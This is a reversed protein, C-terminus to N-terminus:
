NTLGLITGRIAAVTFFSGTVVILDKPQSLNCAQQYACETSDFVQLIKKGPFRNLQDALQEAPVSRQEDVQTIHWIDVVSELAQYYGKIDKDAMMALVATIKGTGNQQLKFAALREALKAAAAPNHAVDLLVDCRNKPDRILEFRGPLHAAILAKAIEVQRLEVNHFQLAQIATAAHIPQLTPQLGPQPLDSIEIRNGASDIGWWNWKQGLCNTIGFDKDLQLVPAVLGGAYDLLSKPPNTEACVMPKGARMIGAKERGIQETTNGLWETHDISISTIIAIDADIINVADLRGGLGVELIIVDLDMRSFLWLAALTGFEFYTLLIDQRNTEVQQFAQCLEPDTVEIGQIKIRENFRHLHPSTYSGVRVGHAILITELFAVSSGKGNTGGVTIVRSKPKGIGLRAAAKAVRDLGLEIETPHLSQIYDLWSELNVTNSDCTM